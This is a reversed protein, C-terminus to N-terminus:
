KTSRGYHAVCEGQIVEVTKDPHHVYWRGEFERVEVSSAEYQVKPCRISDRYYLKPACGAPILLALLALCFLVRKISSM